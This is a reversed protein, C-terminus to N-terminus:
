QENGTSQAKDRSVATCHLLLFLSLQLLTGVSPVTRTIKRNEHRKECYSLQSLPVRKKRGFSMSESELNPSALILVFLFFLVLLRTGIHKANHLEYLYLYTTSSTSGPVEVLKWLEWQSEEEEQEMIRGQERKEDAQRGVRAHLWITPFSFSKGYILHSPYTSYTPEAQGLRPCWATATTKANNQERVSPLLNTTSKSYHLLVDNGVAAGVSRGVSKM